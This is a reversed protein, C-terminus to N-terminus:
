PFSEGVGWKTECQFAWLLYGQHYELAVLFYGGSENPHDVWVKAQLEHTLFKTSDECNKKVCALM